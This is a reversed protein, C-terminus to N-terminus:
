QQCRQRSSRKSKTTWKQKHRTSWLEIVTNCELIKNRFSKL